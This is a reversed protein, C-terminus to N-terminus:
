LPINSVTHKIKLIIFLALSSMHVYTPSHSPISHSMHLTNNFETTYQQLTECITSQAECAYLWLLIQRM